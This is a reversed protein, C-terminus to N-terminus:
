SFRTFAPMTVAIMAITFEILYIVFVSSSLSAANFSDLYPMAAHRARRRRSCAAFLIASLLDPVGTPAAHMAITPSCFLELRSSNRAFM